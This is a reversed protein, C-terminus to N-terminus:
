FCTRKHNNSTTYLRCKNVPQIRFQNRERAERQRGGGPGGALLDTHAHHVAELAVELEVHLGFHIAGSHHLEGPVDRAILHTEQMDPKYM